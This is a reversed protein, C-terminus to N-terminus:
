GPDGDRASAACDGDTDTDDTFFGTGMFCSVGARPTM